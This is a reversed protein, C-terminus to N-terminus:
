TLHLRPVMEATVGDQECPAEAVMDAEVHWRVMERMERRGRKAM